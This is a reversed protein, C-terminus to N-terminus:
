PCVLAYLDSMDGKVFPAFRVNLAPLDSMEGFCIPCKAWMLAALEGALTMEVFCESKEGFHGLFM